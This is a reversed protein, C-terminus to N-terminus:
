KGGFKAQLREFEKREREEQIKNYNEMKQLRLDCEADTEERNIQIEFRPSPNEDYPEYHNGDWNLSADPGYLAILEEIKTKLGSLTNDFEYPRIDEVTETIIMKNNKLQKKSM